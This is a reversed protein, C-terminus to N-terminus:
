APNTLSGVHVGRGAAERRADMGLTVDANRMTTPRDDRTLAYEDELATAADAFDVGHKM